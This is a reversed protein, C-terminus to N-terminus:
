HGKNEQGEADDMVEFDPDTESEEQEKQGAAKGAEFAAKEAADMAEQDGTPAAQNMAQAQHDIEMVDEDVTDSVLSVELQYVRKLGDKIEFGQAQLDEAKMEIRQVARFVRITPSMEMADLEGHKVLGEMFFDCDDFPQKSIIKHMQKAAVMCERDSARDPHPPQETTSEQEMGEPTPAQPTGEKIEEQNM